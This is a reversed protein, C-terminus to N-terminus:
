TSSPRASIDDGEADPATTRSSPQRRRPEVELQHRLYLGDALARMTISAKEGTWPRDSACGSPRTSASSCDGISADSVAHHHRYADGIVDDNRGVCWALMRMAPRASALTEDFTADVLLTAGEILDGEVVDFAFGLDGSKDALSGREARSLDPRRDRLVDARDDFHDYFVRRSRGAVRTLEEPRLGDCVVDFLEDHLM